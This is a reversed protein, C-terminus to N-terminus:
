NEFSNLLQINEGYVDIMWNMIWELEYSHFLSINDQHQKLQLNKIM